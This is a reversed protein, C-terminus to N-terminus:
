LWRSRSAWLMMLLSLAILAWEHPEPVSGSSKVTANGLSAESAQIDFRDYDAQSELVILSSIPSLVHAESAQALLREAIRDKNFYDMGIQKLLDNYAFLRLLHDPARSPATSPGVERLRVKAQHNVISTADEAAAAFQKSALWAQLQAEDGQAYHFLRLDRLSRLYPSLEGSLNYLRIQGERSQLFDNLRASFDSGSLDDLVPTLGSYKTIVLAQEPKGIQYFPFLSFRKKLLARFLRQHNAATVEEMRNTFVYVKQGELAAWLRYLERKSWGRNVDLYVARPSFPSLGAEYAQLQIGRGNFSFVDSALPPAEFSLSWDSKYKGQHRWSNGDAKFSWPASLSALDDESVVEIAEEANQWYPGQFDINDYRLKGDAQQTLPTTFGIKFRRSEGPLVPFIRATVRNGEQWHVLLPDRTEVGVITTYASDAKARTTLLAPAEQGEIWLSASTVVAGEPLYFTYLAEQQGGRNQKPLSSSLKIVKETYALRYAPFLQVSTQIRRTSLKDGRWLLQQTQHRQEYLVDLLRLRDTDSLKLEKSFFSAVVVLPDHQRKENLRTGTGGFLRIPNNLQYVWGGKLIRKTIADDQLHAAAMVWPPLALESLPRKLEFGQNVITQNINQWRLTFVTALVVPIAIGGWLLFRYDASHRLYRRAIHVAQLAQWAPVLALLSIGFLWFSLAVVPYIAYLFVAQYLHFVIGTAMMLLVTYNISNPADDKRFCYALLALHYLALYGTLWDTSEHFVPILKNLSYAGLNALQLLLLNHRSNRFRYLGGYNIQNQTMVIVLYMWLLCFILLFSGLAYEEPLRDLRLSGAFLLSSIALIVLGIVFPKDDRLPRFDLM